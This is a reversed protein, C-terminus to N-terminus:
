SSVETVQVSDELQQATPLVMSALPLGEAESTSWQSPEVHVVIGLRSGDVGALMRVATEQMSGDSQQAVPAVSAALPCFVVGTGYMSFQFPEAHVTSGLGM